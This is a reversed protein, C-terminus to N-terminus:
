GGGAIREARQVDFFRREAATLHLADPAEDPGDAPAQRDGGCGAADAHDDGGLETTRRESPNGDRSM